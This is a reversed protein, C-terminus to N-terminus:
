INGAVMSFISNTEERFSGWTGEENEPLCTIVIPFHLVVAM